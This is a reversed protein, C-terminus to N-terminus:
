QSQEPGTGSPVPANTRHLRWGRRHGLWGSVAGILSGGLPMALLFPWPQVFEDMAQTITCWGLTYYTTPYSLWWVFLAASVAGVLSGLIVCVIILTRM